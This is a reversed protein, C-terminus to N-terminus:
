CQEVRDDGGEPGVCAPQSDKGYAHYKCCLVVNRYKKCCAALALQRLLTFCVPFAQPLLTVQLDRSGVTGAPSCGTASLGGRSRGLLWSPSHSEHMHKTGWKGSHTSHSDRLPPSSSMPKWESCGCCWLWVM